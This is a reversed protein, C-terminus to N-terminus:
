RPDAVQGMFLPLGTETDVIQYSFSRDVALRLAPVPIQGSVAMGNIQTVAAAVTGKEAVTITAAQAAATVVLGPQIANFDAEPGLALVLGMAKLMPELDMTTAHDWTPLSLDVATSGAESLAAAVERAREPSLSPPSVVAPLVVRLAFREGYPIDIAQWGPGEAFPVTLLGNMTPVMAKGGGATTFEADHTANASFPTQWAAAFFTSNLLSLTDEPRYEAPAEKIRGGTNKSAWADIQGKTAAADAFDVPFVGAGYQAALTHLYGEGTPQSKDVFLGDALHLLPTAPPEKDDVSGPDGDNTALASLLANMAEDRGQAPLGLVSDLEDATAGSAGTRLMALAVLLSAPSGVVNGDGGADVLRTGLVLAADSLQRIQGTYDAGGAHIREVGAARLEAPPQAGCGSLSLAAALLLAGPAATRNKM